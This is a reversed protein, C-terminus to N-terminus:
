IPIFPAKRHYWFMSKIVYYLDFIWFINLSLKLKKIQVKENARRWDWLHSFYTKSVLNLLTKQSNYKFCIILYLPLKLNNQYEFQWSLRYGSISFPLHCFDWDTQKQPTQIKAGNGFDFWFLFIWDGATLRGESKSCDLTRVLFKCLSTHM